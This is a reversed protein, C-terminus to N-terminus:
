GTRYLKTIVDKIEEIKINDDEQYVNYNKSEIDDVNHNTDKTFVSQFAQNLITAAEINDESLKGNLDRVAGIDQNLKTKNKVYSYFQNKDDKFKMALNREFNIKANRKIKTAINRLKIYELLNEKLPNEKYIKWCHDRRNIATIVEKSMWKQKNQQKRITKFPVCKNIMEDHVEMLKNYCDNLSKKYFEDKWNIRDLIERAADLNIKNFNRRPVAKKNEMLKEVMVSFIITVHDSKGLGSQYDKEFVELKTRTFFLDLLSPENNIRIRTSNDVNQYWFLDNVLELFNESDAGSAENTAWNIKPFNFDGMVILQDKKTITEAKILIQRLLVNDMESANPPRYILGITLMKQKSKTTIDCWLHEIIGAQFDNLDERCIVNLKNKVFISLGGVEEELVEM